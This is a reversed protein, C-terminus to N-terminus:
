SLKLASSLTPSAQLSVCETIFISFLHILLKVFPSIGYEEIFYLRICFSTSHCIIYYEKFYQRRPLPAMCHPLHKNVIQIFTSSEDEANFLRLISITCEESVYM